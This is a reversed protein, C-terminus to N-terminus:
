KRVILKQCIGEGAQMRYSIIFTWSQKWNIKIWNDFKLGPKDKYDKFVDFVSRLIHMDYNGVRKADDWWEVTTETM